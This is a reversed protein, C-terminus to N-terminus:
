GRALRQIRERLLDATVAFTGVEAVVIGAAINALEGAAGASAGAGLAATFVAAVTDGAGSVDYVEQTQTELMIPQKGGAEVLVLGDEGLTILVMEANWKKLLLQAAQMATPRDTIDIGSAKEAEKRNPKIISYSKYLSYNRPHPDLLLPRTGLGLRKAVRAQDLRRLVAESVSGKGYDSVIVAKSGDLQSDIAAALGEALAAAPATLNEDDIRVVQQGHAMVRTKLTTRRNRDTIVGDRNVGQQELQALVKKGEDDDGIFGCLAVKAGLNVLNRVVNGAGGLRDETNKVEVVPVPAEPSIREVRGWIYRDLIIDGVVLVPLGAIADTTKLLQEASTLM